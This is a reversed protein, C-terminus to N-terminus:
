RHSSSTDAVPAPNSPAFRNPKRWRKPPWAFKMPFLPVIATLQAAARRGAGVLGLVSSEKRALFKAAIGGAGTRVDTLRGAAMIALPMGTEPDNLVYVAAVTPLGRQPEPHSNVVKVGAFSRGGACSIKPIYAPM